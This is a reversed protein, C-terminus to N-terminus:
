LSRLSDLTAIGYHTGITASVERNEYNTISYALMSDVPTKCTFGDISIVFRPNGNFSNNLKKLIELKGEHRTINKM